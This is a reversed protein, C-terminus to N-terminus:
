KLAVLYESKEKKGPRQRPGIKGFCMLYALLILLNTEVCEYGPFVSRLCVEPDSLKQSQLRLWRMLPM